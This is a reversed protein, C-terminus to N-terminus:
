PPQQCSGFLRDYAAIMKNIGYERHVRERNLLGIRNRLNRDRTLTTLAQVFRSEDQSPVIFTRNDTAVMTSIDGVDTAVIPLGAAMAELVTYPMQETDSTVAFVDFLGLAREASSVAGIFVIRDRASSEQAIRELRIREPGDGVIVLRSKPAQPLAAFSRILRPLNKEPRLAAITGIILEGAQRNVLAALKPDSAASFRDCDIGNPIHLVSKQDFGWTGTVLHLLQQSPVVIRTKLGGLAVRRFLIRRRLQRVISEDPGFGDEFHLHPRKLAFRNVLAWETSGWNYTLLITPTLRKLVAHFRHLSWPGPFRPQRGALIKVWFEEGITILSRASADRDLAIVTHRYKGTLRNIISALRVQQGGVGFSPFVHVLHPRRPNTLVDAPAQDYCAGISTEGRTDM